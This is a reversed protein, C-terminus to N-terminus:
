NRGLFMFSDFGSLSAAGATQGDLFRITGGQNVANFVHGVGGSRSGYVIGRAGNGAETLLGAIEAQGSVPKFFGGYIQELVSIPKPGSLPASAPSGALTADTAVACNVCNMGGGLPNVARISGATNAASCCGRIFASREWSVAGPGVPSGRACTAAVNQTSLQASADYSFTAAEYGTTAAAMPVAGAPSTGFLAALLVLALAIVATPWRGASKM